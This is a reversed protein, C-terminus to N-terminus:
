KLKLSRIQISMAVRMGAAFNSARPKRLVEPRRGRHSDACACGAGSLQGGHHAREAAEERAGVTRVGDGGGGRRGGDCVRWSYLRRRAAKAHEAAHAEGRGGARGRDDGVGGGHGREGLGAAGGVGREGEEEMDVGGVEVEGGGRVRDEEPHGAEAERWGWDVVGVEDEGEAAGVAKGVRELQEVFHAGEIVRECWV